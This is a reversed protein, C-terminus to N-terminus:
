REDDVVGCGGRVRNAEADVTVEGTRRVEGQFQPRTDGPLGASDSTERLVAVPQERPDLISLPTLPYNLVPRESERERGPSHEASRPTDARVVNATVGSNRGRQLREEGRDTGGLRHVELGGRSRKRRGGTTGHRQGRRLM